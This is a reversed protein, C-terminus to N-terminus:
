EGGADHRCNNKENRQVFKASAIAKICGEQRLEAELLHLPPQSRTVWARLTMEQGIFV